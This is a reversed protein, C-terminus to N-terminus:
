NSPSIGDWPLYRFEIRTVLQDAGGGNIRRYLALFEDASSDPFGELIVDLDDIHDLPERIVSVVEILALRNIKEGKKLGMGKEVAWLPEGGELFLWGKRRTVTKTQDLIQATTEAFSMNRPM